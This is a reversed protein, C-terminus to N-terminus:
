VSVGETVIVLVGVIETDGVIVIVGEDGLGKNASTSRLQEPLVFLFM